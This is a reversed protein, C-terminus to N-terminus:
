FERPQQLREPAPTAHIFLATLAPVTKASQHSMLKSLCYCRTIFIHKV